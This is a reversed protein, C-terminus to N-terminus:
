GKANRVVDKSGEVQKAFRDMVADAGADLETATKGFAQGASIITTLLLAMAFWLVAKSPKLAPFFIGQNM